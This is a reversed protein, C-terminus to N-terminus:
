RMSFVDSGARTMGKGLLAPLFGSASSATKSSTGTQRYRSRGEADFATPESEPYNKPFAVRTAISTTVGCDTQLVFDGELNMQGANADLRFRLGPYFEKVLAEEARLVEGDSREFWAKPKSPL